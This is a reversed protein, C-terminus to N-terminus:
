RLYEFRRLFLFSLLLEGELSFSLLLEGELSLRLSGLILTLLIEKFGV